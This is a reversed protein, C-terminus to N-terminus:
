GILPVRLVAEYSAGKPLLRSQFLTVESVHSRVAGDGVGSLARRVAGAGGPGADKVRAVTIHPAFPRRDREFGLPELRDALIGHLAHLGGGDARVGVWLVAPRGSSPFAGAGGVTVSFPARAFPKELAARVGPVRGEDIEGLFWMTLHINQEATWRAHFGQPLRSRLSQSAAFVAARAAPELEVAVFLRM